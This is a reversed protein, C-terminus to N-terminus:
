RKALGSPVLIDNVNINNHLLARMENRHRSALHQVVNAKQTARYSCYLCKFPKIGSHLLMHRKLNSVRDFNRGCWQCIYRNSGGGENVNIPHPDDAPKDSLALDEVEQSAITDYPPCFRPSSAEKFLHTEPLTVQLGQSSDTAEHLDTSRFVTDGVESYHPIKLLTPSSDASSKNNSPLYGVMAGGDQLVSESDNHGDLQETGVLSGERQSDTSNTGRKYPFLSLKDRSSLTRHEYQLGSYHLFHLGM